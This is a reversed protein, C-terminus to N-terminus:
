AEQRGIEGALGLMIEVPEAGTFEVQGALLGRHELTPADSLFEEETEADVGKIQPEIQATM